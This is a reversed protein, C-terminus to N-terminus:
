KRFTLRYEGAKGDLPRNQADLLATPYFSEDPTNALPGGDWVSARQLYDVGYRGIAAAPMRWGKVFAGTRPGVSAILARADAEARSLLDPAPSLRLTAEFPGVGLPAFAAVMGSDREEVPSLRIVRDLM